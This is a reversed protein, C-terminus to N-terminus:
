QPRACRELVARSEADLGARGAIAADVRAVARSQAGLARDIEALICVADAWEDSSDRAATLAELEVALPQALRPRGATMLARALNELSDAIEPHDAPLAKRRIALAREHLAVADDHRQQKTAILGQDNLVRAVHNHEPGLAAEFIRQARELHERALELRGLKLAAVGISADYEGVLPNGPELRPVDIARAREFAALAAEADGSADHIWGLNFVVQAVHPHEPGLTAEFITLAELMRDRAETVRGAMTLAAGINELANAALPHRPGLLEVLMDYARQEEIVAEDFRGLQVLANGVGEHANAIDISAPGELELRLRLAERQDALAADYEGRVMRVAGRDHLLNAMLEPRSSTRLVAAEARRAAADAAARNALRYGQVFMLRTWARAALEDHSGAEAEFTAQELLSAAAEADGSDYRLEGRAFALEASLPRFGAAEVEPVLAELVARADDYQAARQMARARALQTRAAEVQSRQSPPPELNRALLQEVDDCRAAAELGAVLEDAHLVAERDAAVLVAATADLEDLRRSLCVMRLDLLADSQRGARHGECAERHSARWGEGWADLRGIVRAAIAEGDALGSAAFAAETAARREPGWVAAVREGGDGCRERAPWMWGTIGVGLMGAAALGVIVRTRRRRGHALADLLADMSGFRLAPDPQLGRRVAAHLWRPVFITAPARELQGANAAALLSAISSGRYPAIGYLARYLAVCLAYQDARADAVGGALVEPAMYAPTGVLAGTQTLRDVLSLEATAAARDDDDDDPDRRGTDAAARALGFDMVRVRGDDGIMVNDPKFDRHVLGARHAAALGRAAAEFLPLVQAWPQSGQALLQTLTRGAVYEMAIFLTDGFRGVDHIAVVNPHSLRALAQAERLIRVRASEEAEGSGSRHMLKLAVRRDLQPDIAAYVVGMGGSGLPELVVYRGLVTGKRLHGSGDDSGGEGEVLTPLEASSAPRPTADALSTEDPPAATM